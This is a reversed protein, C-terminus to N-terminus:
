NPLPVFLMLTSLDFAQGAKKRGSGIEPDDAVTSHPSSPHITGARSAHDNNAAILVGILLVNSGPDETLSSHATNPSSQSQTCNTSHLSAPISDSTSNTKSDPISADPEKPKTTSRLQRFDGGPISHKAELDEAQTTKILTTQAQKPEFQTTETQRTEAQSSTSQTTEDQKTEVKKPEPTTSRSDRTMRLEVNGQIHRSKRAARVLERFEERYKEVWAKIPFDKDTISKHTLSDGFISNLALPKFALHSKEWQNLKQRLELESVPRNTDLNSNFLLMYQNYRLELQPRLGLVSIKLGAMKEKLKPTSLSGFDIRPMRKTDHHHKEAQGFYFQQHNIEKAKKKPQFFLSIENRKRKGLSVPRKKGSLCEDIHKLQLYEASMSRDGCIPCEATGSTPQPTSSGSTTSPGSKDLDSEDAIEIVEPDPSTVASKFANKSAFKDNAALEVNEPERSAMKILDERVSRFCGVIEELLIDRKLNSEFQESKCLPCLNEKM